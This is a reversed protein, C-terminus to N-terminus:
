AAQGNTKALELIQAAHLYHRAVEMLTEKLRETTVESECMSIIAREIEELEGLVEVHMREENTPVPMPTEKSYSTLLRAYLKSLTIQM